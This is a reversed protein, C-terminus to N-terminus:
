GEEERIRLGWKFLRRSLDQDDVNGAYVIMARLAAPDTEPRLVFVDSSPPGKEWGDRTMLDGDKYWQVITDKYSRLVFQEDDRIAKVEEAKVEERTPLDSM